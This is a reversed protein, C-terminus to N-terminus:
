CYVVKDFVDMNFSQNIDADPVALTNGWRPTALMEARPTFSTRQFKDILQRVVSRFHLYIVDNCLPGTPFVHHM